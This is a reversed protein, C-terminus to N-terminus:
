FVKFRVPTPGVRQCTDCAERIKELTKRTESNVHFPRALKLLNLLMDSAPHSFGRHLKHLESKTFLISDSKSWELYVHGLKRTVPINLTLIPNCLLNEVTNVFFQYKDPFDLGILFPIDADVVDVRECIIKNLRVPFEFLFIALQTKYM